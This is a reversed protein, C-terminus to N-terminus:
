YAVYAVCLLPFGAYLGLWFVVNGMLKNQKIAPMRGVMILPIQILQLIFLYMRIKRTVVVMVLEHACASILFTIFMATTKSLRYSLITATYVHRLLFTHVPKNWKRSFEDWSTSNWMGFIIYFLLLYAMMFPLALDLLSRLFSQDATPTYPLIFSETVSYLLAFTGFTAVTKEFVYLPRIRDTRPYELEYVLTPILQYVAFGKWTITDPWKIGTPTSVMESQLESYDNAMASIEANPHAVLPHPVFGEPLDEEVVFTSAGDASDTSIRKNVSRLGVDEDRMRTNPGNQAAVTVLRKRLANATKADVYSTSSGEPVKPTGIPTPEHTSSNGASGNPPTSLESPSRQADIKAQALAVANDWSGVAETAKRLRYMLKESRHQVYQMQGNVTIYSHMKMIMVLSHLTLFGSQVWPWNRNFTWSIASFLITTQLLHQLVVGTWYYRIWGNKLALAFPVCIGTSLVLVADSLALTVADQSFMAAFALNLPRGSTEISRVYSQVTFIFISIWFLSFFGRFENTSSRDNNIDFVSKRPTFTILARLKKSTKSRYPKSVYITGTTTEFGGSAKYAATASSNTSPVPMSPPPDDLPLTGRIACRAGLYSQATAVMTARKVVDSSM